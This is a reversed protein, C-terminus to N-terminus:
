LYSLAISFSKCAIGVKSGKKIVSKLGSISLISFEEKQLPLTCALQVLLILQSLIRNFVFFMSLIMGLSLLTEVLILRVNVSAPKSAKGM